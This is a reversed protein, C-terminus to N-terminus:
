FNSRMSSTIKVVSGSQTRSKYAALARTGPYGTISKRTSDNRILFWVKKSDPVDALKTIVSSCQITLTNSKGDFYFDNGEFTRTVVCGKNLLDSGFIVNESEQPTAEIAINPEIKVVGGPQNSVTILKKQIAKTLFYVAEEKWLTDASEWYEANDKKLSIPYLKSSSKLVIDAKKRGATDAGVRDALLIDKAIFKHTGDTFVINCTGYQQIIYNIAQVANTENEVGASTSGQKSLPKVAIRYNEVDIHGMSGGFAKSPNSKGGLQGILDNFVTARKENTLVFVSKSDKQKIDKYGIKNLYTTLATLSNFRAM